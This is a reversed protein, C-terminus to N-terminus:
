YCHKPVHHEFLNCSHRHMFFISLVHPPCADQLMYLIGGLMNSQLSFPGWAALVPSQQSSMDPLLRKSCRCTYPAALLTRYTCAGTTMGTTHEQQEQYTRDKRGTGLYRMV